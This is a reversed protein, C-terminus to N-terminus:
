VLIHYLRLREGRELRIALDPPARCITRYPIQRARMLSPPNERELRIALDPPARCITRYPIRRDRMLSPPNQSLEFGPIGKCHVPPDALSPIREDTSFLRRILPNILDRGRPKSSLCSSCRGRFNGRFSDFCCPCNVGLLLRNQIFRQGNSPRCPNADDDQQGFFGVYILHLPKPCCSGIRSEIEQFLGFLVDVGKLIPSREM